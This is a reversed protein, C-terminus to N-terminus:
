TYHPDNPKETKTIKSIPKETKASLITPKKQKPVWQHKRNKGTKIGPKLNENIFVPKQNKNNAPTIGLGRGKEENLGNETVDVPSTM